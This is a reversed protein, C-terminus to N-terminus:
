QNASRHIGAPLVSLTVDAGNAGDIGYAGAGTFGNIYAPAAFSRERKLGFLYRSFRCNDSDDIVDIVNFPFLWLFACLDCFKKLRKHKKTALFDHDDRSHNTADDSRLLLRAM